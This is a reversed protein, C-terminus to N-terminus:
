GWLSLVELTKPIDVNHSSRPILIYIRLHIYLLYVNLTLAAWFGKVSILFLVDSM